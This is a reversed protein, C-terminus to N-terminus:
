GKRVEILKKAVAMVGSRAFLDNADEGVVGSMCYPLDAAIATKEGTQSADNDAFIFRRGATHQAVYLLNTASFCVLVCANLRSFRLAIDVTLGTAYGEVLYTEAAPKAGIRLVAGKARMGYLMKKEWENDVLKIIQAGLLENSQFDRMPVLLEGDKLVLAKAEPLTKEKLYPHTDLQASNVLQAARQAADQQGRAKDADAIRRCEAWQRKEADSWPTVRDSNWWQAPEGTEWNQVFGRGGYLMYAGNKSAPHESTPCRHIKGDSRLDNIEVGNARAFSRFDM